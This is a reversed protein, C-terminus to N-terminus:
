RTIEWRIAPLHDLLKELVGVRGGVGLDTEVKGTCATLHTGVLFGGFVDGWSKLDGM